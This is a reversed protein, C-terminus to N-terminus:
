NLHHYKIHLDDPNKLINAYKTKDKTKELLCHMKVAFLHLCYGILGLNHSSEFECGESILRRGSRSSWTDRGFPGRDIISFRKIENRLSFKGGKMREKVIETVSKTKMFRM